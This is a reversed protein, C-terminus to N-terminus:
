QELPTPPGFRSYSNDVYTFIEDVSKGEDLLRMTDQAIDVCISCGLAHEDFTIAGNSDDAVFCTYNSTHGMAGCGCYCPIQSTVDPNAVAFQYAEQVIAPAQQVAEPMEAMPAMAFSHETAQAGNGSCGATGASVVLLLLVTISLFRHSRRM